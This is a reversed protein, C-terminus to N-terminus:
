DETIRDHFCIKQTFKASDKELKKIKKKKLYCILFKQSKESARIKKLM